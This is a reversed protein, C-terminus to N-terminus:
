AASWELGASGSRLRHISVRRSKLYGQREFAKLLKLIECQDTAFRQAAESTLTPGNRQIFELLTEPPCLRIIEATM